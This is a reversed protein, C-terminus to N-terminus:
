AFIFYIFMQINFATNKTKININIKKETAQTNDILYQLSNGINEIFGNSVTTITGDLKLIKEVNTTNYIGINFFDKVNEREVCLRYVDKVTGDSLKIKDGTPAAETRSFDYVTGTDAPRAELAAIKTDQTAQSANVEAKTYYNKLKDDTYNKAETVAETKATKAKEIANESATNIAEDKAIATYAKAQKLTEADGATITDSITNVINANGQLAEAIEYITDLTEPATGVLDSFAKDLQKKNVAETELTAQGTTLNGDKNRIANHHPKLDNVHTELRASLQEEYDYADPDLGNNDIDDKTLVAEDAQLLSYITQSREDIKTQTARDQTAQSANLQRLSVLDNNEIADNAKLTGTNSRLAISHGQADSTAGHAKLDAEHTKLEENTATLKKNFILLKDAVDVTQTKVANVLEATVFDGYVQYNVYAYDIDKYIIIKKWCTKNSIETAISDVEEFDFDSGRRLKNQKGADSYISFGEEFFISHALNQVKGKAVELVEDSVRNEPNTGTVDQNMIQVSSM